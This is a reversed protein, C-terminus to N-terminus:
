LNTLVNYIEVMAFTDLECYKRLDALVQANDSRTQAVIAERWSRSATGGEQINMIKYSLHPCLLPLVNKISSRGKLRMDQYMRKSFPIELDIVRENLGLLFDAKHPYLKALDKHRGTEFTANWVIISGKSGIIKELSEIIYPAPNTNTPHLYEAHTIRGDEQMIHISHQFVVQQYPWTNEFAPVVPNVSEYDLFYIPFEVASMFDQLAPKNVVVEGLRTTRIQEKQHTQLKTSDPIDIILKVNGDELEGILKDTGRGKCSALDYISYPPIDPNLTRYIKRWDKAAGLGVYRLSDSPMEALNMTAVAERMKLKAELVEKNVKATVDTFTVFDNIVINHQRIYDSNAHLVRSTIIPFGNHEIVVKQFALDCVHEKDPSTTSKIETLIYGNPTATIADAICLYNEYVFAAQLITETKKELLEKTKSAWASINPFDNRDLSVARDFVQEALKEFSRGEEITAQTNDDIRPLMERDHKKLWLWAPHKLYLLYDSKSLLLNSHPM